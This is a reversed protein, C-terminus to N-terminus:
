LSGELKSVYLDYLERENEELKDSDYHYSMGPSFEWNILKKQIKGIVESMCNYDYVFCALAHAIDFRRHVRWNDGKDYSFDSRTHTKM